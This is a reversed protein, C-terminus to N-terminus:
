QQTESMLMPLHLLCTVALHIAQHCLKSMVYHRLNGGGEEEEEEWACLCLCVCVFMKAKM